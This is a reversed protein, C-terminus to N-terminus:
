SHCIVNEARIKNIIQILKEYGGERLERLLAELKVSELSRISSIFEMAIKEDLLM